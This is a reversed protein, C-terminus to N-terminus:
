YLPVRVIAPPAGRPAISGDDRFRDWGSNAIFYYANGVIIGHTPDGLRPTAREVVELETIRTFADDFHMRVVREPTVGNQVAYLDHGRLAAGDIGNVAITDPHEVWTVAGTTRDLVALGLAYDPVLVRDRPLVVPTQPSRFTGPPVLLELRAGGPPVRYIAGSPGDSVVVTGDSDIAMDGLDHAHGDLPVDYRRKLDRTSLDVALLTSRGTDAPRYGSVQPMSSMTVWLMARPTDIALAVAGFGASPLTFWAKSAGRTPVALVAGRHVSSVLFTAHARDYALDEALADTDSVVGVISGRGVSTRNAAMAASVRAFDPRARLSALATDQDIPYSLGMAAL